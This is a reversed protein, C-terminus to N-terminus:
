ATKCSSGTLRGLRERHQVVFWYLANTAGPFASALAALPRGGPLVRLLPAVAEGGSWIQGAPSVLHWSRERDERDAPVLLASESARLPLARLYRRRDWRLLGSVIRTCLGCDSDYLLAFKGDFDSKAGASHGGAQSHSTYSTNASMAKLM